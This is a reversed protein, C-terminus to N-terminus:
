SSCYELGNGDNGDNCQTDSSCSGVAGSGTTVQCNAAAICDSGAGLNDRCDVLDDGDDDIGNNCIEAPLVPTTQVSMICGTATSCNYDACDVQNDDDNDINDSCNTEVTPTVDLM